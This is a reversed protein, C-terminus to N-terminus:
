KHIKLFKRPPPIGYPFEPRFRRFFFVKVEYQFRASAGGCRCVLLGLPNYDNCLGVTEFFNIFTRGAAETSGYHQQDAKVPVVGPYPGEVAFM